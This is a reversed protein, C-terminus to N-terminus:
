FNFCINYNILKTKFTFIEFQILHSCRSVQYKAYVPYRKGLWKMMTKLDVVLRVPRHTLYAALATAVSAQSPSSIKSGYAGGLLKM